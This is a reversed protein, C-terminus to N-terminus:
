SGQVTLEYIWEHLDIVMSPSAIGANWVERGPQLKEKSIFECIKVSKIISTEAWFLTEALLATTNGLKRIPM